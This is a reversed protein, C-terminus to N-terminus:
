GTIPEEYYCVLFTYDSYQLNQRHGFELIYVFAAAIFNGYELIIELM